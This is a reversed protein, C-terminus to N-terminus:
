KIEDLTEQLLRNFLEPNELMIFHGYGKMYKVSFGPAVERNYAENTPWLDANIAYVPIKMDMLKDEIEEGFSYMSEFAQMAVSSDASSMDKAIRNILTTDANATFMDRVFSDTRRRFDQYFPATYSKFMERTFTSDRFQMYTDVGIIALVRDPMKSAADVIVEGGMSHGVLIVRDLDLKEVVAVVDNGFSPITFNERKTGSNGHGGYDLTLVRYRHSFAPIQHQWYTKDCSWGHVFVLATDGSGQDTYSVRLGDGSKTSHESDPKCAFIFLTILFVFLPYSTKM